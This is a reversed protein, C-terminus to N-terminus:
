AARIGLSYDISFKFATFGEPAERIEAAWERMRGIDQMDGM